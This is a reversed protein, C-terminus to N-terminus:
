TRGLNPIIYLNCLQKYSAYTRPRVAPKVSNELWYTLYQGVTQRSADPPLIGQQQDRLVVKLKEAVEKRTKGYIPKRRRKGNVIGLDIATCWRGDSERQYIAGEGHGRRSGM